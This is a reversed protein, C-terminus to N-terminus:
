SFLNYQILTDTYIFCDKEKHIDSDVESISDEVWKTFILHPQIEFM